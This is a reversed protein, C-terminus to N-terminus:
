QFNSKYSERVYLPIGNGDTYFNCAFLVLDILHGLICISYVFYFIWSMRNRVKWEYPKLIIRSLIDVVIVLLIFCLKFAGHHFRRAYFHGIGLVFCLEFIFAAVQRKQEYNCLYETRENLQAYGKFCQCTTANLCKGHLCTSENCLGHAYFLPNSNTIKFLLGHSSRLTNENIKYQPSDFVVYSQNILSDNFYQNESQSSYSSIVKNKTLDPRQPLIYSYSNTENQKIQLFSQIESSFSPDIHYGHLFLPANIFLYFIFIFDIQIAKIFKLNTTM